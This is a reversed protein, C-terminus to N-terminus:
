EDDEDDITEDAEEAATNGLAAKPAPLWGQGNWQMPGRPTNYVGGVQRKTPDSPVAGRNFQTQAKGEVAARQAERLKTLAKQAERTAEANPGGNKKLQALREQSLTIAANARAIRANWEKEQAQWHAARATRDLSKEKAALQQAATMSAQNLQTLIPAAASFEPPLDSLGDAELQPRIRDWSAQDTVAGALGGVKEAKLKKTRTEMLTQRVEATAATAAQSRMTSAKGLLDAGLTFKGAALAANGMADLKSTPSGEEGQVSPGSILELMRKTAAAEQEKEAAQATYLRAQAEKARTEAPQQEIEGLIKGANLAGLVNKRMDDEAAGIGIPAGFMDAM